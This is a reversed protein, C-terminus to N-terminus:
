WIHIETPAEDDVTSEDKADGAPEVVCVCSGTLGPEGDNAAAARPAAGYQPQQGQWWSGAQQPATTFSPAHTEYTPSVGGGFLRGLWAFLGGSAPAAPATGGKYAPPQSRYFFDM